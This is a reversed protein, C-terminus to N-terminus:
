CASDSPVADASQHGLVVCGRVRWIGLCAVSSLCSEARDSSGARSGVRKCPFPVLVSCQWLCHQDGLLFSERACLSFNRVRLFPLLRPNNAIDASKLESDAADKLADVGQLWDQLVGRPLTISENTMTGCTQLAEQLVASRRITAQPVDVSSGDPLRLVIGDLGDREAVAIRDYELVM